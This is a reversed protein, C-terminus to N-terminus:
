VLEERVMFKYFSRLSSLKRRATSASCGNRRIAALFSRGSFRDVGKWGYPPKEDPWAHAAFQLIDRLYNVVTHESADKEAELYRMFGHLSPDSEWRISPGAALASGAEPLATIGANSSSSCTRNM